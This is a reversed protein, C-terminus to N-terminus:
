RQPSTKNGADPNYGIEKASAKQGVRAFGDSRHAVRRIFLCYTYEFKQILRATADWGNPSKERDIFNTV